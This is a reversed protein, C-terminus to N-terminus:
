DGAMEAAVKEVEAMVRLLNGGLIKRIDEESYGLSDVPFHGNGPLKENEIRLV